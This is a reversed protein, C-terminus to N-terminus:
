HGDLHAGLRELSQTMGAEFGGIYKGAGPTTMTVVSTITLKTRGKSEVLIVTHLFEFMLKGAEDMAGSTFVLRGPGSVERFEGGMPFEAGNPARMVVYIRNGPKADWEVVPNTFGRPGWWEVLHKPDTWAKFVLDRPADYEREIVFERGKYDETTKNPKM